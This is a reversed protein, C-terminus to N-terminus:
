VREWKNDGYKLKFTLYDCESELDIIYFVKEQFLKSGPFDKLIECVDSIPMNVRYTRISVRKTCIDM